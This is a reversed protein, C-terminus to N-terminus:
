WPAVWRGGKSAWWLWALLALVGVLALTGIVFDALPDLAQRAQVVLAAPDDETDRWAQRLADQQEDTLQKISAADRANFHELEDVSVAWFRRNGNEPGLADVAGTTQQFVIPAGDTRRRAPENSGIQKPAYKIPPQTM